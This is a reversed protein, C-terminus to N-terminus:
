ANVRRLAARILDQVSAAEGLEVKSEVVARQAREESAGLEVLAQIAEGVAGTAPVASQVIFTQIAGVKSQLELLIRQATKKGIGPVRAFASANGERIAAITESASMVSFVNLATRPGIGAVSLILEFADRDDRTGFGYLAHEAERVHEYTFLRVPEARVPLEALTRTSVFVQYGVGNVDLVLSGDNREEVTGRLYAIM